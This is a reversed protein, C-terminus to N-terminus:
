LVQNLSQQYSSHIINPDYNGNNIIYDVLFNNVFYDHFKKLGEM